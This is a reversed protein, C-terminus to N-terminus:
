DGAHLRTRECADQLVIMRALRDNTQFLHSITVDQQLRARRYERLAHCDKECIRVRRSERWLALGYGVVVGVVAAVIM